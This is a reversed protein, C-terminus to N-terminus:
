QSATGSAADEPADSWALDLRYIEREHYALARELEDTTMARAGAKTVLGGAPNRGITFAEETAKPM